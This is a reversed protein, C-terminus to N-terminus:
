SLVSKLAEKTIRGQSEWSQQYIDPARRYPNLGECSTDYVDIRVAVPECRPGEAFFLFGLSEMPDPMKGQASGVAEFDINSDMLLVEVAKVDDEFVDIVLLSETTACGNLVPGSMYARFDRLLDLVMLGAARMKKLLLAHEEPDYLAFHARVATEVEEQSPFNRRAEAGATGSVGSLVKNRANKWGMGSDAILAAMAQALSERLQDPENM